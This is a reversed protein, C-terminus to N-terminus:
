STRGDGLIACSGHVSRQCRPCRWTVPGGDLVSLCAPCRLVPGARHIPPLGNM